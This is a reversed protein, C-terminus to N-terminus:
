FDVAPLKNKDRCLWQYSIDWRGQHLPLDLKEGTRQWDTVWACIFREDEWCIANMDISCTTSLEVNIGMFSRNLCNGESTITVDWKKGERTNRTDAVQKFCLDCCLGKDQRLFFSYFLPQWWMSLLSIRQSMNVLTPYKIWKELQSHSLHTFHRTKSSQLSWLFMHVARTTDWNLRPWSKVENPSKLGSM